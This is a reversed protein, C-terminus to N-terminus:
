VISESMSSTTSQAAVRTNILFPLNHVLHSPRRYKSGFRKTLADNDPILIPPQPIFVKILTLGGLLRITLVNHSHYLIRELFQTSDSVLSRWQGFLPQVGQRFQAMVMRLWVFCQQRSINAQHHHNPFNVILPQEASIRATRDSSVRLYSMLTKTVGYEQLM